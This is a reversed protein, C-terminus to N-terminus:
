PPPPTVSLGGGEYFTHIGFVKTCSPNLATKKTRVKSITDCCTLAHVAPLTDRVSQGIREALDHAPIARSTAGQGGLAWIETLDFYM